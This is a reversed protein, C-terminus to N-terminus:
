IRACICQTEKRMLYAFIHFYQKGKTTAGCPITVVYALNLSM